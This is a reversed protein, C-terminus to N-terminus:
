RTRYGASVQAFLKKEQRRPLAASRLVAPLRLEPAVSVAVSETMAECQGEASEPEPHYVLIFERGLRVGQRPHGDLRLSLKPLDAFCFKWVWCPLLWVWARM